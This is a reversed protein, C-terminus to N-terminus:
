LSCILKEIPIYDKAYGKIGSDAESALKLARTIATDSLNEVATLYRGLPFPKIGTEASIQQSTMGNKRCASVASMDCLVRIIDAMIKTPETKCGILFSLIDLAKKYNGSVMANALAFSDYEESASGATRVDASTVERRGSAKVYYSIKETESSLRFMDSGCYNVTYACVDPPAIVGNENYHRGVWGNLRAGTIREFLVPVAADALKKFLASPRKPLGPDFGSAPLSLIVVSCSNEDVASLLSCLENIEGQRLDTLSLTVSVPKFEAFMPPSFVAAELADASYSSQDMSVSDFSDGGSLLKITEAVASRKLYDEEGYFFYAKPIKGAFGTKLRKRFDAGTMIENM